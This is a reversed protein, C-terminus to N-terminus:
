GRNGRAPDINSHTDAPQWQCIRWPGNPTEIDEFVAELPMGIAIAVGNVNRLQGVLLPGEETEVSAVTYPVPFEPLYYRHFVVWSVLCGRGSLASWDYDDSLCQPCSPGPPYRFHGCSRCKQLRLEDKQSFDWYPKDYLGMQPEPHLTKTM